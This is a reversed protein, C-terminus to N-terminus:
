RSIQSCDCVAYFVDVEYCAKLRLIMGKSIDRTINYGM